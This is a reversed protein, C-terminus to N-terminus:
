FDSNRLNSIRLCTVEAELKRNTAAQQRITADKQRITADKQRITAEHQRITAKLDEIIIQDRDSSASSLPRSIEQSPTAVNSSASSLPRSIEQSPTAVNSSASSLPRSIEQSPIAVNSSASSLPRSIEQSPIATSGQNRSRKQTKSSERRRKRSTQSQVYTEDSDDDSEVDDGSQEEESENEVDQVDEEGPGEEEQVEQDVCERAELHNVERDKLFEKRARILEAIDEPDSQDEVINHLLGSKDKITRIIKSCRPCSNIRQLIKPELDNDSWTICNDSNFHVMACEYCITKKKCDCDTKVASEEECELCIPPYAADCIKNYRKMVRLLVNKRQLKQDKTYTTKDYKEVIERDTEGFTYLIIQQFEESGRKKPPVVCEVLLEKTAYSEVLAVVVLGFQVDKDDLTVQYVSCEAFLKRNNPFQLVHDM